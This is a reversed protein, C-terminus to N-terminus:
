VVSKRDRARDGSAKAQKRWSDRKHNEIWHDAMISEEKTAVLVIGEHISKKNFGLDLCDLCFADQGDGLLVYIPSM